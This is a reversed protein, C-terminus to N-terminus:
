IGAGQRVSLPTTKVMSLVMSCEVRGYSQVGRLVFHDLSIVTQASLLDSVFRVVEPLNGSISLNVPYSKFTEATVIPQPRMNILVLTPRRAAVEIQQLFASLTIQDSETQVVAEDRLMEYERSMKESVALNTLLKAYDMSMLEAQARVAKQTDYAPVLYYKTALFVAVSSLALGLLFVERVSLLTMWKLM